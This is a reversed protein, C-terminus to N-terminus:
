GTFADVFILILGVLVMVGYFPLLTLSLATDIWSEVADLYPRTNMSFPEVPSEPVRVADYLKRFLREQRLFYADLGWFGAV